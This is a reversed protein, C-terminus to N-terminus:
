LAGHPVQKAADLGLAHALRVDAIRRDIRAEILELQARSWDNEADTLEVSTAAGNQFMVRRVRYSESASALGRESSQMAADAQRLSLLERKVELETGDLLEARQADLKRAKAETSSRSAETGFIDTPTWSVQLTADWSGHFEDRQPFYRQNPNAYQANGIADLRPLEAALAADAQKRLAGASESVARPELRQEFAQVVLSREDAQAYPSPQPIGRLDEGLVYASTGSDHMVIRLQKEYADTAVQARTLQLEASAVKAEVGLV